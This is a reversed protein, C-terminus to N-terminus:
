KVLLRGVILVVFLNGWLSEIISMNTVAETINEYPNDLGSLIMISYSIRDMLASASFDLGTGLCDPDFICILEYISGFSIGIMLYLSAAGWIKIDMGLDKQFFERMTFFIVLVEVGLLASQIFTGVYRFQSPNLLPYFPNILVTSVFFIGMIIIFSFMVLEKSKTYFRLLDWLLLVYIGLFGFFLLESIEASFPLSIFNTFNRLLLCTVILM